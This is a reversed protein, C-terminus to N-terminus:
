VEHKGYDHGYLFVIHVMYLFSVWVHFWLLAVSTFCYLLTGHGHTHFCLTIDVHSHAMYIHM